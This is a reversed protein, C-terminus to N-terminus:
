LILENMGINAGRQIAAINRYCILNMNKIDVLYISVKKKFNDVNNLFINTLLQQFCVNVRGM